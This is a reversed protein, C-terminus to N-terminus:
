FRYTVMGYVISAKYNPFAYAGSLYNQNTGTRLNYIYADMQIDSYDYKEWAAGLTLDIRKTAAYIGKVNLTKKSFNDYRTIDSPIRTTSFAEFDVSGDAKQWIFSGVLRLREHARWDAAVGLLYNKDKVDSQWLFTTGAPNSVPFTNTAGVWHRSDYVTHEYDAFATFRMEPPGYSASVAIEQRTDSTRGLVTSKYKNHKYALEGGVELLPAPNADLAVKITDRTLPAADFRFTTRAFVDPFGATTLALGEKFESTRVLHIYKVRVDAVDWAGNKWELTGKTEKSRDFDNRERETEQYDIGLTIKNARAGRWQVEAGFNNKEYHLFETSCTTRARGTVPDFDCTGGSSPTFVIETSDNDRKYWNYYVKSTFNRALNSNYALSLSKNVVEGEFTAENPNAQRLTGTTGSVSIFSTGVPISNTLKTYTARLALNSDFPLKKVVGNVAIRPQTHDAGLTSIEGSPGTTIAPSRWILFDNSDEFKSWLASISWHMLKTSYGLEASVDTTTWQIPAPLEYTPGGPSTGPEGLPRIGDSKKRNTAVRVYFPSEAAAQAEVVGGVNKHQVSYDFRNWTALNTSPPATGTFTLNNSGVGSFPTIANFTLNHIIDDSYVSYKFVGYKGGKLEVFQDDRGLNEGFLRHWWADSGFRLNFGAIVGSDLDRYEQFRFENDSTVHTSMGGLTVSGNFPPVEQALAASVSAALATMLFAAPKRTM